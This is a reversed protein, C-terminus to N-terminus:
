DKEYVEDIVKLLHKQFKGHKLDKMKECLKDTVKELLDESPNMM